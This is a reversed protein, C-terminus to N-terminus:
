TRVKTYTATYSHTHANTHTRTFSLHVSCPRTLLLSPPLPFSPSLSPPLSIPISLSLFLFHTHRRSLIICLALNRSTLLDLSLFVFPAPIIYAHTHLHTVLHTLTASHTQICLSLSRARVQSLSMPSFARVHSFFRARALSHSTGMVELEQSISVDKRIRQKCIQSSAARGRARLHTSTNLTTTSTGHTVLRILDRLPTCRTCEHPLFFYLFFYFVFHADLHNLLYPSFNSMEQAGCSKRRRACPGLRAVTNTCTNMYILVFICLYPLHHDQM